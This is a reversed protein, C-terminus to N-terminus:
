INSKIKHSFKRRKFFLNLEREAAQPSDSGHIANADISKGYIKRITGAKAEQPNTAGMIERNLKIANEGELCMIIVPSSCMFKIMDKFFPKTQHEQYFITAQELTIYMIKM